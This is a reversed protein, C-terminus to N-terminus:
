GKRCKDWEGSNNKGLGGNESLCARKHPEQNKKQATLLHTNYNTTHAAYAAM